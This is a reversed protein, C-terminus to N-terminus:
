STLFGMKTRCAFVKDNAGMNVLDAATYGNSLLFTEMTSENQFVQFQTATLSEGSHMQINGYPLKGPQTNVVKPM